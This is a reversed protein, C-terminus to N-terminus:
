RFEGICGTSQLVRTALRKEQLDCGRRLTGIVSAVHARQRAIYSDPLGLLIRNDSYGPIKCASRRKHVSAIDNRIIKTLYVM